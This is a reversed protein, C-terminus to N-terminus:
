TSGDNEIKSVLVMMWLENKYNVLLNTVNKWNRISIILPFNLFELLNMPMTLTKDSSMKCINEMDVLM